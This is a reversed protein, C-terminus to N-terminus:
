AAQGKSEAAVSREAIYATTTDALAVELQTVIGEEASSGSKGRRELHEALQGVRGAGVNRAAGKMTHAVSGLTAADARQVASRIATLQTAAQELFLDVLPALMDEGDDFGLDRIAAMAGLDLLPLPEVDPPELALPAAPGASDTTVALDVATASEVATATRGATGGAALWHDMTSRMADIRVPKSLYDDMGAALCRGRDAETANATLAVIPVRVGDGEQSRIRGTAEFGDMGPMQCDMLIVDYRTQAAAKVAEFGDAAVDPKYGLRGLIALAVRTNVENDEVVLVRADTSPLLPAAPLEDQRSGAPDVPALVRALCDLLDSAGVPKALRITGPPLSFRTDASGSASLLVIKCGALDSDADFRAAMEDCSLGAVPDEILLCVFPDGAARAV